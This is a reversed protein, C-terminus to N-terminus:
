GPPSGFFLKGLTANFLDQLTGFMYMLSGIAVAIGFFAMFTYTGGSGLKEEFFDFKGTFAVVRERYYVILFGLPIGILGVLIRM